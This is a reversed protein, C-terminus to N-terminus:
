KEPEEAILPRDRRARKELYMAEDARRLLEDATEADGRTTTIGISMGLPWGRRRFEGTAAAQLRRAVSDAVGSDAGPLLMCFEDGGMRASLDM